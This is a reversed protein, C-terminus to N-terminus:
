LTSINEKSKRSQLALYWLHWHYHTYQSRTPKNASKVECSYIEKGAQQWLLTICRSEQSSIWKLLRHTKLLIHGQLHSHLMLEVHETNWWLWETKFQINNTVSCFLVSLTLKKIKSCKIAVKYTGLFVIPLLYNIPVSYKHHKLLQYRELSMSVAHSNIIWVSSM